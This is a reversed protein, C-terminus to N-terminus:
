AVKKRTLFKPKCEDFAMGLLTRVTITNPSDKKIQDQFMWYEVTKDSLIEDWDYGQEKIKTFLEAPTIRYKCAIRHNNNLYYGMGAVIQMARNLKKDEEIMDRITTRQFKVDPLIDLAYFHGSRTFGYDGPLVEKLYYWLSLGAKLGEEQSFALDFKVGTPGGKARFQTYRIIKMDNNSSAMSKNRFTPFMPENTGTKSNYTQPQKLEGSSTACLFSNTLFTLARKPVGAVKVDGKFDDLLKGTNADQRGMTLGDNIHGTFGLYMGGRALATPWRSMMDSKQKPDQAALANQDSTGIDAKDRANEIATTHFESMSDVGYLWPDLIAKLKARIPDIFQTLRLNQGKAYQKFRAEVEDRIYQSWWDEGPLSDSSCLNYNQKVMLMDYVSDRDPDYDWGNALFVSYIAVDLRELQASIETDYKSGWEAKYRWMVSMIMYDLLMTKFVNGRGTIAMIHAFGGNLYYLGDEGLEYTGLAHDIITFVNFRPRVVEGIVQKAPGAM